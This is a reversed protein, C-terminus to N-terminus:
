EGIMLTEVMGVDRTAISTMNGSEQDARLVIMDEKTVTEEALIVIDHIMKPVMLDVIMLRLRHPHDRQNKVHHIEFCSKLDEM